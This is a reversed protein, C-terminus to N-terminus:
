SWRPRLRDAVGVQGLGAREGVPEADLVREVVDLVQQAVLREVRDHDARGVMQVLRVDQGRQRGVQVDQDLLRERHRGGAHLADHARRLLAVAHHHHAHVVAVPRVHLDDAAEHLAALQAPDLAHAAAPVDEPRAAVLEAPALPAILGAAAGHEVQAERDEIEPEPEAPVGAGTRTLALARRSAALLPRDLLAAAREHDALVAHREEDVDGPVVQALALPEADPEAAALAGGGDIREGHPLLQM